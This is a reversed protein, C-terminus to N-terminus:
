GGRAHPVPDPIRYGAGVVTEIVAPDGLRKRLTMMAVRVVNSFPDTREDWVHELLAEASVVAGGARLLEELVGFEKPSLDIRHGDRTVERTAPDLRIGARELIPPRASASRRALAHVRARLEEFAFPKPLYDDAGLNLGAVRDEIQAAATLMLVRAPVDAARLERCVDDGHLRPLNRDLIVVDYDNILAKELGADGDYAEDVAIGDRRLGRALAAVLDREDEVVLVRM